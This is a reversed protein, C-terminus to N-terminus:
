SEAGGGVEELGIKRFLALGHTPPTWVIRFIRGFIIPTDTPEIDAAIPVRMRYTGRQLVQDGAEDIDGNALAFGCPGSLTEPTGDVFGGGGDPVKPVRTITYSDPMLYDAAAQRPGTLDIPM